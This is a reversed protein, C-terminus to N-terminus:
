WRPCSSSFSLFRPFLRFMSPLTTTTPATGLCCSWAKWASFLHISLSSWHISFVNAECVAPSCLSASFFLPLLVYLCHIFPLSFHFLFPIYLFYQMILLFSIIIELYYFSPWDRSLHFLEFTGSKTALAVGAHSDPNSFTIQNQFTGEYCDCLLKKQKKRPTAHQPCHCLLAPLAFYDTQGSEAYAKQFPTNM